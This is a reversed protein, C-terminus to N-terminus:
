EWSSGPRLSRVSCGAREWYHLKRGRRVWLWFGQGQLPLSTTVGLATPEAKEGTQLKRPAPSCCPHFPQSISLGVPDLSDSKYNVLFEPLFVKKKKRALHISTILLAVLEGALDLRKSGWSLFSLLESQLPASSSRQWLCWSLIRTSVPTEPTSFAFFWSAWKWRTHFPPALSNCVPIM